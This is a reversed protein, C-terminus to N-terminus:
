LKYWKCYLKRYEMELALKVSCTLL